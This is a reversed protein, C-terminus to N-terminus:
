ASRPTIHGINPLSLYNPHSKISTPELDFDAIFADIHFRNYAKPKINNMSFTFDADAHHNQLTEFKACNLTLLSANLHFDIKKADRAQCDCLGTFQKGDRFLFEIQWCSYGSLHWVGVM